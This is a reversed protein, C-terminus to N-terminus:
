NDYRETLYQEIIDKINKINRYQDQYVGQQVYFWNGQFWIMFDELLFRNQLKSM